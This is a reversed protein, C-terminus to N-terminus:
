CFNSFQIHDQAVSTWRQREQLGPGKAENWCLLVTMNTKFSSSVSVRWMFEKCGIKEFTWRSGRDQIRSYILYKRTISRFLPAIFRSVSEMRRLVKLYAALVGRSSAESRQPTLMLSVLLRTSAMARTRGGLRSKTPMLVRALCQTPKEVVRRVMHSSQVIIVWYWM